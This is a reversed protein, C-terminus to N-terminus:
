RTPETQPLRAIYVDVARVGVADPTGEPMIGLNTDFLRPTPDDPALMLLRTFASMFGIGRDPAWRTEVRCVTARCSVAHLLSAPVDTSEFAASIKKELEGASADRRDSAFRAKLEDAPGTKEPQPLQAPPPPARRPAAATTASPQPGAAAAPPTPPEAPTPEDSPAGPQGAALPETDSSPQSAPPRGSSVSLTTVFWLAAATAALALVILVNRNM